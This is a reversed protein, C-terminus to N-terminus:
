AAENRRPLTKLPRVDSMAAIIPGLHAEILALEEDTIPLPQLLATEIRYPRLAKDM